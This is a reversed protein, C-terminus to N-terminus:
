ERVRVWGGLQMNSVRVVAMEGCAAAVVILM